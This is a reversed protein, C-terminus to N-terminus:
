GEELMILDSKDALGELDLQMLFTQYPPWQSMSACPNKDKMSWPHWFFGYMGPFDNGKAVIVPNSWPGELKDATHVVISNVNERYYAALWKKSPYHYAVSLESVPGSIVIKARSQDASWTGDVQLISHTTLDLLSSKPARALYASGQRGNPTGFLYIFGDEPDALANMQFKQSYDPSNYWRANQDKIWNQGGNDSYALGAYNTTWKGADGWAKISFYTAYLRQGVAIASTPIITFDGDRDRPIVQYAHNARDTIWNDLVIGRSAYDRNTSRALVNSRWEGEGVNRGAFTDGWIILIGGRGDDFPIGLDTCGVAGRSITKNQSDEGTFQANPVKRAIM